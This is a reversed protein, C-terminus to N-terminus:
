LYHWTLETPTFWLLDWTWDVCGTVTQQIINKGVYAKISLMTIVSFEFTVLSIEEDLEIKSGAIVLSKLVSRVLCFFIAPAPRGVPM